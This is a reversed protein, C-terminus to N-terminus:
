EAKIQKALVEAFRRNGEPLFHGNDVFDSESFPVDLMQAVHPLGEQKAVKEMGAHYAEMSGANKVQNGAKRQHRCLAPSQAGGGNAGRGGSRVGCGLTCPV